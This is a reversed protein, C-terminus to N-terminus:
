GEISMLHRTHHCNQKILNHFYNKDQGVLLQNLVKIVGEITELLSYNTLKQKIENYFFNVNYFYLDYLEYKM